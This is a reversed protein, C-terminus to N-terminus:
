RSSDGAPFGEHDRPTEARHSDHLSDASQSPVAITPPTVALSTPTARAPRKRSSSGGVYNVRPRLRLRLRHVEGSRSCASSGPVYGAPRSTFRIGICRGPGVPGGRPDKVRRHPTAKTFKRLTYMRSRRRGVSSKRLTLHGWDYGLGWGPGRPTLQPGLHPALPEPFRCPCGPAVTSRSGEPRICGNRFM